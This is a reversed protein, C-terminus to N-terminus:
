HGSTTAAPGYRTAIVEMGSARPLLLYFRDYESEDIAEIEAGSLAEVILPVTSSHGAIVLLGDAEAHRVMAAVADVHAEIDGSAAPVITVELGHREALVALTQRTRRYQSAILGGVEANAVAAALAEARARGAPTLGPDRTGDDAKEAHRVVVIGTMEALAPAVPLAILAFLLCLVRM